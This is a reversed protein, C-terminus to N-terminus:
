FLISKIWNWVQCILYKFYKEYNLSRNYFLLKLFQQSFFFFWLLARLPKWKNKNKQVLLFLIRQRLVFNIYKCRKCIVFIRIKSYNNGCIYIYMIKIYINSLHLMQAYWKYIQCMFIEDLNHGEMGKGKGSAMPWNGLFKLFVTNFIGIDM